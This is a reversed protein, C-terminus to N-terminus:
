ASAEETLAPDTTDLRSAHVDAARLLAELYALGVPGHRDLLGLCRECWSRGTYFSLGLAAPELTLVLEVTSDAGPGMAVAPLRDGERVGRVPLGRGDRDLYEQDKPAAHLGVRVKGHHSAILYAVLDFAAPSLDLIEQVAGEPLLTPQPADAPCEMLAFAEAWRGLLAPHQPAHTKLLAFLALASALEHRLGPREDSDDPFRYTGPPSLWAREPAKALDMRLPRDEARIGGQFAPHSKGFDHWHGACRLASALDAPLGLSEALDRAIEAVESGHHRITKWGSVSLTEADQRNESGDLARVELPISPVAVPPVPSRSNPAFGHVPLYGGCAAAVCVVRGPLLSSRSSCVWRGELWDWVWARMGKRLNPKRSSKTEEGCLWDRAKLFPVSCLERRQPQRQSSPEESPPLALWFVQVDREDGSRIFRSIDLDAGTLDPTTDFLEDFEHRLLLHAPTYPYLRSRRAPALSDEFLGLSLLGVDGLQQVVEWASDLGDTTYPAVTKEDRGRDVVLVRGDGGYRACRGFRQVLSPWPALETILCGASIDVGAEVVQTAVVIRDTEPTCAERSLFRERWAEREAARFRSHVLELGDSRGLKRLADFTDCARGVTNCVVLTIHGNGGPLTNAHEALIRGAFANADDREIREVALPKHSQWLSGARQLSPVECPNCVWSQYSQSTDTDVTKLWDAQLTASMWWTYCARLGKERDEDRFAQLQASTVLGTDMLQVEDMVWLADQNLLAYEVPWRARPCAYGRNLARSLLMDQTGILIAPHEPHLYWEGADEGGMLLHVGVKGTHDGAGDWLLGLGDLFQRAVQETQEVLVRMPLTWVLRRPWTPEGCIVRRWIWASLVGATKGLGTPVRILRNRCTTPTVLGVQWEHPSFGANRLFWERFETM